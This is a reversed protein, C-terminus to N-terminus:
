YYFKTVYSPVDCKRTKINWDTNAKRLNELTLRDWNSYGMSQEYNDAIEKLNNYVYCNEHCRVCQNFYVYYKKM